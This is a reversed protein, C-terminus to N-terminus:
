TIETEVAAEVVGQSMERSAEKVVVDVKAQMEAPLPILEISVGGTVAGLTKRKFIEFFQPNTLVLLRTPADALTLYYLEAICALISPLKGGSTLGSHAKISAVISGDESVADFEHKGGPQLALFKKTFPQRYNKALEARVFKEVEGALFTTNAM